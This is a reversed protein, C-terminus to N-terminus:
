FRWSMVIGVGRGRADVAPLVAWRIGTDEDLRAYIQNDSKRSEVFLSFGLSAMVLTAGIMVNRAKYARNAKDYFRDFDGLSEAEHYDSYNKKYSSHLLAAIIGTGVSAGMVWPAYYNRVRAQEVRQGQGVLNYAINQALIRVMKDLASRGPGTVKEGYIKGTEVHTIHTDIRLRGASLSLEGTIVFRAGLLKGIKQAEKEDLLGTQSLAQEKLLAEMNSRELVAIGNITSLETKLMEPVTEELVDLSFIDTNNKFDSIAVTIVSDTAVATRGPLPQMTILFLVFLIAIGSRQLLNKRIEILMTKRFIFNHKHLCSLELRQIPFFRCVCVRSLMM